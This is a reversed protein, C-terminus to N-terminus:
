EHHYPEGRLITFARYLQEVFLLRIMQHSFTMQSLSIKGEARRYVDDSFGYPGGVVFILNRGAAMWKNIQAAFNVSRYESGHEDLLILRSATDVAALILEGERQKQEEIRMSKANRLEPIVQLSFTVYHKLRQQYDTILAELRADTTKGVVLFTIKM